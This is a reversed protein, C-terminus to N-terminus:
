DAHSIFHFPCPPPFSFTLLSVYPDFEHAIDVSGDIVPAIDFGDEEASDEAAAMEDSDSDAHINGGADEDSTQAKDGEVDSPPSSDSSSSSSSSTDIDRLSLPQTPQAGGRTGMGFGGPGGRGRAQLRDRRRAEMEAAGKFNPVFGIIKPPTTAAASSSSDPAQTQDQSLSITGVGPPPPTFKPIVSTDGGDSPGVINVDVTPPKSEKTGDSRAGERDEDSAELLSADEFRGGAGLGDSVRRRRTEFRASARRAAKRADTTKKDGSGNVRLGLAGARNAGMITTTYKLGTAGPFGAPRGRGGDGETVGNQGNREHHHNLNALGSSRQLGAERPSHANLGREDEDDSPAPSSTVALEPWREIDALNSAIIYPNSAYSPSLSIM